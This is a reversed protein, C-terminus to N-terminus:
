EDKMKKLEGLVEALSEELEAKEKPAKTYNMATRIQQVAGIYTNVEQWKQFDKSNILEIFKKKGAADGKMYDKKYGSFENQQRANEESLDYYWDPLKQKGGQETERPATIVRNVVPVEQADPMNGTGRTYM